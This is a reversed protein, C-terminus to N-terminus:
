ARAVIRSWYREGGDESPNAAGAIFPFNIFSRTTYNQGDMLQVEHEMPPNCFDLSCDAGERTNDLVWWMGAVDHCEGSSGFSQYVDFTANCSCSRRIFRALIKSLQEKHRVCKNLKQGSEGGGHNLWKISRAAAGSKRRLIRWCSQSRTTSTLLLALM